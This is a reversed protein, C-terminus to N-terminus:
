FQNNLFSCLKIYPENCMCRQKSLQFFYSLCCTHCAIIRRPVATDIRRPVASGYQEGFYSVKYSATIREARWSHKINFSGWQNYWFCEHIRQCCQNRSMTHWIKWSRADTSDILSNYHHTVASHHQVFSEWQTRHIRIFPVNKTGRWRINHM